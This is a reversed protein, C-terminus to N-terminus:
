PCEYDKTLTRPYGIGRFAKKVANQEQWANFQSGLACQNYKEFAALTVRDAVQNWTMSAFFTYRLAHFLIAGAKVSGSWTSRSRSRAGARARPSM